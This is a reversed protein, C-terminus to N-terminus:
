VCGSCNACNTAIGHTLTLSLAYMQVSLAYCLICPSISWLLTMALRRKTQAVIFWLKIPNLGRILSIWYARYYIIIMDISRERGARYTLIIKNLCYFSVIGCIQIIHTDRVFSKIARAQSNGECQQQPGPWLSVVENTAPEDFAFSARCIASIVRSDLMGPRVLRDSSFAYNPVDM